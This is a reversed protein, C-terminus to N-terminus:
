LEDPLVIDREAAYKRLRVVDDPNVSSRHAKAAEALDEFTVQSIRDEGRELFERSRQVAAVKAGNVVAVIDAGNYNKLLDSVQDMDINDEVPVSGLNKKVLQIRAEHNALPIYIHHEFRGPRMLASDIMWPRNTAALLVITNTNQRFGDMQNILEVIVKNNHNGDDQREMGLADFDDFFILSTPTSRAKEFLQRIRKESEGVWKSLVDSLQVTYLPANIEHAIARAITTKGTGPLGFLLVGTGGKLGYQSYLEPYKIQDIVRTRILQKVDEMGIVDDFTTSPVGESNWPNEGEGATQGAQNGSSHGTSSSGGSSASGSPTIGAPASAKPAPAAGLSDAKAIVQEAHMIRQRKTEGTELEAMKCLAMAAQRYLKRAGELNGKREAIRAAESDARYDQYYRSITENIDM